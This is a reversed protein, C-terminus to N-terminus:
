LFAISWNPVKHRSELNTVKYRHGVMMLKAHSAIANFVKLDRNNQRNEFKMVFFTQFYYWTGQNNATLVAGINQCFDNICKKPM